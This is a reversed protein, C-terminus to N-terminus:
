RRSRDPTPARRDSGLHWKESLNDRGLIELLGKMSGYARPGHDVGHCTLYCAGSGPGDSVFKLIGTSISPSVGSVTTEEGFRILARNEVSGHPNHCTACSTRGDKIHETHELFRPRKLVTERDHCRYCLSYTTENESSGDSTVYNARLLFPISSGHPGRPGGPDANGHCDTCNIERGSLTSIVSSSPEVAPAEVPHFSRNEPSLLRSIDLLDQTGAGERGHCDQCLEFEFRTPDRPSLRRLGDPVDGAPEQASGRHAAHCSTCTVQGRGRRSFAEESVPHVSTLHFVSDMQVPRASGSVLGRAVMTQLQGPSGHCHFCTEKQPMSLMPSGAMGHGEHCSRCGGPILGTDVHPNSFTALAIAGGGVVFGIVLLKMTIRPM